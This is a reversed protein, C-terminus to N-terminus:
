GEEEDEELQRKKLMLESELWGWGELM